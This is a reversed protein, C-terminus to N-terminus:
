IRSLVHITRREQASEKVALAIELTRIGDTLNCCPEKRNQICDIFHSMEDLFMTNRGFGIPPHFMTPDSQDSIHMKACSDASNWVISGKQGIILIEHKPPQQVYDLYVTGIIDSEFRCIVAATDETEIEMESVRDVEACVTKIEGILWRLYDFPHCLTLVVGGGLDKRASYANRYDEWPHWGPLYEGWHAHISTIRGISQDDIWAKIQRLAPHFRYQFGIFVILHNKEVLAKLINVRDMSHSIPKELFLHSGSEAAQIATDMHLSTPNSVVVATPKDSLAESFDHKVPYRDLDNGQLTGKGTRYLTIDQIGISVLNRLHRQGISGLGAILISIPVESDNM